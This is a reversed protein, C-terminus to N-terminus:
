EKMFKLEAEEFGLFFIEPKLQLGTKAKTETIVKKILSLYDAATAHGVNEIFAAHKESIIADGIRFGKLGLVQDVIYGVSTTPYGLRVKDEDSINQYVCGLSTAPQVKKRLAWEQAVHRAKNVDGRYLQFNASVIIEQSHHFRSFDYAFELESKPLTKLEGDQDIVEVSEIVEEVFHTGGHINNYIAGGISAPIRAYWQLGTIGQNILTNIAMPLSVGAAMEVRVKPEGSEDYDLDGFEYTLNERSNDAQWRPTTTSQKRQADSESTPEDLIQTEQASNKIVLGNIGADAILTNAGWGIITIPIKERRCFHVVEIFDQTSKVELFVEAPGGIKVTTFPALPVQTRFTLHSFHDHLTHQLSM